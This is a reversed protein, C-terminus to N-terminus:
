NGSAGRLGTLDPYSGEAGVGSRLVGLRAAMAEIETRQAAIIGEAISRTLPDRGHILVLRAMDVAGQHHPIMMALFDIDPDGTYGPAHMDVMMRVMDADMQRQFDSVVTGTAAGAHGAHATAGTGHETGDHM